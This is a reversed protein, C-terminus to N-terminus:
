QIYIEAIEIPTTGGTNPYCVRMEINDTTTSPLDKIFWPPNNFSCCTNGAGCGKGDWLPDATRLAPSSSYISQATDCFYDSGVYGPVALSSLAPNACPCQWQRYTIDTSEDRGGAFSWIHKRPDWGHTLSVGYVYKTSDIPTTHYYFAAPSLKQYGVIRGCVRSYQIGQIDYINNACGSEPKDCLRKPSSILSLGSPCTHSTNRMDLNIVKMWGGTQSGCVTDMACYMKVPEGSTAIWYNGSPAHANKQLFDKCSAAPSEESNQPPAPFHYDLQLKIPRLFQEVTDTLSHGLDELSMSNNNSTDHLAHDIVHALKKELGAVAVQVTSNVLQRIEECTCTELHTSSANPVELTLVLLLAALLKM